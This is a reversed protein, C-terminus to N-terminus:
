TSRPSTKSVFNGSRQFGTTQTNSDVPKTSALHASAARSSPVRPNQPSSRRRIQHNLRENRHSRLLRTRREESALREVLEKAAPNEQAAELAVKLEEIEELLVVHMEETAKRADCAAATITEAEALRANLAEQMDKRTKEMAQPRSELDAVLSDRAVKLQEDLEEVQSKLRSATGELERERGRADVM